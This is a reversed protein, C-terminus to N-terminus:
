AGHQTAIFFYGQVARRADDVLGGMLQTAIGPVQHFIVLRIEDQCHGFDMAVAAGPAGSKGATGLEALVRFLFKFDVVAHQEVFGVHLHATGHQIMLDGAQGEGKPFSAMHVDPLVAQRFM